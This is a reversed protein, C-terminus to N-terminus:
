EIEGPSQCDRCPRWCQECGWQKEGKKSEQNRWNNKKLWIRNIKKGECHKYFADGGVKEIIM